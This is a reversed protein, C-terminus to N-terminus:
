FKTYRLIDKLNRTIKTTLLYVSIQPIPELQMNVTHKNWLRQKNQEIYEFINKQSHKFIFDLQM